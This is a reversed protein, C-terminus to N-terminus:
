TLEWCEHLFFFFYQREEREERERREAESHKSVELKYYTESCGAQQIVREVEDVDSADTAERTM